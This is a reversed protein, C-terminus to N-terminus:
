VGAEMSDLIKRFLGLFRNDWGPIELSILGGINQVSAIRRDFPITMLVPLGKSACFDNIEDDSGDSRNIVVGAPIGMEQAVGAALELDHLGFPTSETVLMCYDAGKMTEIVPCAIGPPADYIALANGDAMGKAKHIVPPAQVEGENLVGSILRLTPSHEHSRVVGVKRPIMSIAGQPCVIACGNCSHCLEPFFTHDGKVVTLAGYRCFRGCDGCGKCLSKDVKPNGVTVGTEDCDSPFFLHLNPEEVDCDVVVVPQTESLSQALNACVTSKGTGGKGSAIALRM